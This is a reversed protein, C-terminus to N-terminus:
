FENSKTLLYDYENIIYDINPKYFTRFYKKNKVLDDKTFWRIESKEFYGNNEDYFGKPIHKKIFKHHNNFYLPLNEDYDTKFIFSEHRGELDAISLILNQVVKKKLQYESGYFGDLEEYGERIATTFKDENPMASGGFEGWRGDSKEKGFLFLLSGKMLAVPVIGAGMKKGSYKIM